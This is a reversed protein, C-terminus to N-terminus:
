QRARMMAPRRRMVSYAAALLGIAFLALSGPEPVDVPPLVALGIGSYGASGFDSAMGPGGYASCDNSVTNGIMTVSGTLALARGCAINAASGFTISQQALINGAIDSGSGLSASSGVQFYIGNSRTGNIVNVMSDAATTLTSGIQFVFVGSQDNGFDLTLNGTLAASSSFFYVGPNLVGLTGLDRGSLDVGGTLAALATYAGQADSQAQMATSDTQHISGGAAFTVSDAGTISTGPSVGLDGHLTTANTNTVSQAGLVAFQQAVGLSPIVDAAASACALALMLPLALKTSNM